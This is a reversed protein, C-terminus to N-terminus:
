ERGERTAWERARRGRPKRQGLQGMEAAHGLAGAAWERPPTLAWAAAPLTSGRAAPGLLWGVHTSASAWAARGAVSAMTRLRLRWKRRSGGVAIHSTFVAM